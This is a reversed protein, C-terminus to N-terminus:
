VGIEMTYYSYLGRDYGSQLGSIFHFYRPEPIDTVTKIFKLAEQEDDTDLVFGINMNYNNPLLVFEVDLVQSLDTSCLKGEIKPLKRFESSRKDKWTRRFPFAIKLNLGRYNIEEHGEIPSAETPANLASLVVGKYPEADAHKGRAGARLQLYYEIEGDGGFASCKRSFLCDGDVNGLERPMGDLRIAVKDDRGPLDRIEGPFFKKLFPLNESFPEGEEISKLAVENSEFEGYFPNLAKEEDPSEYLPIEVVM